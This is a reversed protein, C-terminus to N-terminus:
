CSEKKEMVERTSSENKGCLRAIEAYPKKKGIGMMDTIKVKESITPVDRSRMPKSASGADSSKRKPGM